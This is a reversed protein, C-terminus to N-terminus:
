HHRHRQRGDGDHPQRRPRLEPHRSFGLPDIHAIVQSAADYVTTSIFGLPTASATQRGLADYTSTWLYGLADDARDRRPRQLGHDDPLRPREPGGSPPGSNDYFYCTIFGLQDVQAIKQKAANYVMTAMNGLPDPQAIRYGM